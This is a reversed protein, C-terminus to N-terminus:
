MFEGALLNNLLRFLTPYNMVTPTMTRLSSLRIHFSPSLSRSSCTSSQHCQARALSSAFHLRPQTTLLTAWTSIVKKYCHITPTPSDLSPPRCRHHLNLAETKARSPLRHFSVNGSSSGSTALENQRWLFSAHYPAVAHRHRGSSLRTLSMRIMSPWFIFFICTTSKTAVFPRHLNLVDILPLKFQKSFIYLHYRTKNM